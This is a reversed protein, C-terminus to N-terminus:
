SQLRGAAAAVLRITKEVDDLEVLECPTHFYRLPISVVATRVGARSLYVADADTHSKGTTVEVGYDIGEAEATERLLEFLAPDLGPGRALLPGGDLAVTGSENPDGGPVDNAPTIDVVLAYAPELLYAAARAGVFDGVEEQVSAVAVVEGAAGGAEAVRRAAELAVYAGLRNDLARSALRGNALELPRAAIVAADGLRVREKAEDGSKAGIDVFLDKLQVARKEDRRTPDRRMYVVGPVAGERALVEVRQAVLVEPMWGGIGRFWLRGDDDINTVILGIEDLHGFVAVLPGEGTGEVRAFSNGSHDGSVDAFASAAERWVRAAEQEAGSPGATELLKLLLDPAAV